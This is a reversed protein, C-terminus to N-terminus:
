PISQLPTELVKNSSTATPNPPFIKDAEGHPVQAVNKALLNVM